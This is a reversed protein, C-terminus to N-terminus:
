SEEPIAQMNMVTNGGSDLDIAAPEEISLVSPYDWARRNIDMRSFQDNLEYPDYYSASGQGHVGFKYSNVNTLWYGNEQVFLVSSSKTDHNMFSMVTLKCVCPVPYIKGLM